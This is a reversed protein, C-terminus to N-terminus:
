ACSQESLGTCPGQPGGLPTTAYCQAIPTSPRLPAEVPTQSSHGEAPHGRSGRHPGRLRGPPRPRTTTGRRGERGGTLGWHLSTDYESYPRTYPARQVWGRLAMRVSLRSRRIRGRPHPQGVLPESAWWGGPPPQSPSRCRRSAPALAGRSWRWSPSQPLAQGVSRSGAWQGPWRAPLLQAVGGPPPLTAPGIRCGIDSVLGHVESGM